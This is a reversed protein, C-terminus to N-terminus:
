GEGYRAGMGTDTDIDRRFGTIPVSQQLTLAQWPGLRNSARRRTLLALTTPPTAFLGTPDVTADEDHHTREIVPCEGAICRCQRALQLLRRRQDHLVAPM